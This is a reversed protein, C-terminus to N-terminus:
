MRRVDGWSCTRDVGPEDELHLSRGQERLEGEPTCGEGTVDITRGATFLCTVTMENKTPTGTKDTCIM